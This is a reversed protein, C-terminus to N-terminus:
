EWELEKYAMTVNRGHYEDFLTWRGREGAGVTEVAAQIGINDRVARRTEEVLTRLYRQLDAAGAPWDVREPGHGPM